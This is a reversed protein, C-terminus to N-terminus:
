GIPHAHADKSILGLGFVENVIDENAYVSAAPGKVWLFTARSGPENLQRILAAKIPAGIQFGAMSLQM